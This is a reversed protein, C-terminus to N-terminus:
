FFAGLLWLGVLVGMVIVLVDLLCGLLGENAKSFSELSIHKYKWWDRAIFVVGFLLILVVIWIWLM